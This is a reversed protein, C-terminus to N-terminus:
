SSTAWWKLLFDEVGIPKFLDGKSEAKLVDRLHNPGAISGQSILRMVEYLSIMGPNETKSACLDALEVDSIRKVDFKQGISSGNAVDPKFSV